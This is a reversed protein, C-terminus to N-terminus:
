SVKKRGFISAGLRASSTAANEGSSTEGSSSSDGGNASDGREVPGSTSVSDGRKSFLGKRAPKNPETDGSSDKPESESVNGSTDNSEKEKTESTTEFPVSKDAFNPEKLEEKADQVTEKVEERPENNSVSADGSVRRMATVDSNPKTSSVAHNFVFEGSIVGDTSTLEVKANEIRDAFEPYAKLAYAQIADKIDNQSVTLKLNLEMKVKGKLNIEVYAKDAVGGWQYSVSKLYDYNDDPLKGAEVLADCFFKDVISCVNAVDCHRHTDRYLVYEINFLEEFVPLKSIETTVLEKFNVKAKNLVLYHANRYNNLNLIWDKKKSLGVVSPVQIRYTETHTEIQM